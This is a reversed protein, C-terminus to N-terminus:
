KDLGGSDLLAKIRQGLKAGEASHTIAGPEDNGGGVSKLFAKM